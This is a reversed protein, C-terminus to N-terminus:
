VDDHLEERLVSIKSIFGFPANVTYGSNNLPIDYHKDTEFTYMPNKYPPIDNDIHVDEASGEPDFDVNLHFASSWCRLRQLLDDIVLLNEQKSSKACFEKEKMKKSIDLCACGRIHSVVGSIYRSYKGADEKIKDFARKICENYQNIFKKLRSKQFLLTFLASLGLSAICAGFYIAIKKIDISEYKIYNYVAPTVSALLATLVVLLNIGFQKRTVRGALYGVVNDAAAKTDADDTDSSRPLTSQLEILHDYLSRIDERIDNEQYKDLPPVKSPPPMLKSRSIEATKDLARVAEKVAKNYETEVVARNENWISVDVSAGEPLTDFLDTGIFDNNYENKSLTVPLNVNYPILKSKVQALTEEDEKKIESFIIERMIILRDVMQQFLRKLDNKEIFVNLHYLKYAQLFSPEIRNTALMLVSCWFRFTDAYRQVYGQTEFDFVLFRCINPYKNRQWFISDDNVRHSKWVESLYKRPEVKKESVSVLAVSSPLRGDFKYKGSLKQYAEDKEPRYVPNYITKQRQNQVAVKVPNFEITPAPVGGLMNTLRILPVRSECVGKDDDSNIVFDFPNDASTEFATMAGEDVLRVVVAKWEEKDNTLDRLEPLASDITTGSEIWRCIGISNNNISENFLTYYQSFSDMTRRNM